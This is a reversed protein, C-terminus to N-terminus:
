GSLICAMDGDSVFAFSADTAALVYADRKVGIAPPRKTDQM